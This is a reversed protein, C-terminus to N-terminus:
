DGRLIFEVALKRANYTKGTGPPGYFIIQRNKILLDNIDELNGTLDSNKDIEIDINLKDFIDPNTKKILSIIENKYKEVSKITGALPIKLKKYLEPIERVNLPPELRIRETKRKHGDKEDFEYEGVVKGIGVFNGKKYALFVDGIKVDWTFTKLQRRWDHKMKSKGVERYFEDPDSYSKKLDKNIKDFYPQSGWHYLISFGKKYWEDGIKEM